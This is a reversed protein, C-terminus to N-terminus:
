ASPIVWAKYTLSPSTGGVTAKARIHTAGPELEQVRAGNMPLLIDCTEGRTHTYTAIEVASSCALMTDVEFSIVYTEDSDGDDADTVILRIAFNDASSVPLPIATVAATTAVASEDALLMDDDYVHILRGLTAM